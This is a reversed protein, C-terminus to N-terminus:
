EAAVPGPPATAAPAAAPASPVTLKKIADEFGNLANEASTRIHEWTDVSSAGAKAIDAQAGEQLKKLAAVRDSYEPNVDEGPADNEAMIADLREGLGKLRAEWKEFETEVLM